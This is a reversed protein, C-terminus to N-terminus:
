ENEGKRSRGSSQGASRRVPKTSLVGRHLLESAERDEAAFVVTDGRSHSGRADTYDVVVYLTRENAM